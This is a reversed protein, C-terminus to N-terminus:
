EVLDKAPHLGALVVRLLDRIVVLGDDMLKVTSQTLGTWETADRSAFSMIKIVSKDHASARDHYHQWSQGQMNGGLPHGAVVTRTIKISKGERTTDARQETGLVRGVSVAADFGLQLAQMLGYKALYAEDVHGFQPLSRYGEIACTADEVVMLASLLQNRQNEDLDAVVNPARRMQDCLDLNEHAVPSYHLQRSLTLLYRILARLPETTWSRELDISPMAARVLREAARLLPGDSSDLVVSLRTIASRVKAPAVSTNPADNWYSLVAKAAQRIKSRLDTPTTL